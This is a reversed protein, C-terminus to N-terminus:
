NESKEMCLLVASNLFTKIRTKGGVIRKGRIYAMELRLQEYNYLTHSYREFTDNAYDELGMHALNTFGKAITRRIRQEMGVPSDSLKECVSRVTLDGIQLRHELLYSVVECIDSSGAEGAIGIEKLIGMMCSACSKKENGSKGSFGTNGTNQGKQEESSLVLNQMKRLTQQMGLTKTMNKLVAVTEIPNIPKRIYFEIGAEYADSIMDPSDVQSIMVYLANPLKEKAKSVFTIGDMEPMLLDVLVFDPKLLPLDELAEEPDTFYDEVSGLQKENIIQRLIKCINKDDDIIVYKM